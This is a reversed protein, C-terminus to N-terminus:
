MRPAAGRLMDVTAVAINRRSRWTRWACVDTSGMGFFGVLVLTAFTSRLLKKM